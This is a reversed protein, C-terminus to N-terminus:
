FRGGSAHLDADILLTSQQGLRARYIQLNEVIRQVYNRTETIPILEIWDVVDVNPDRPDGHAKIWDRVRGGGANYAAFTMVYSGGQEEFLTGLHAAGLQANFAPDSTLRAADFGVGAKKATIRATGVLMQMLGKAGAGSGASAVFASEQRAISYVIAKDSFGSLPQFEPVGFTPFALDDLAFGHQSAAKGVVLSLHAERTAAAVNALAAMQAPDDIHLAVDLMLSTAAERAGLQQLAEAVRIAEARAEGQPANSTLRLPMASLGLKARALQGYFMSSHQGAKAYFANAGEADGLAEQTRGQWYQARSVSMPNEAIQALMTFHGRALAPNKLFRLAIWGAHFEAELRAANGIAGHGACLRYATAPDNRDLMERALMRREVWWEDGDVLSAADQPAKLMMEVAADTKAARRLKQITSFKLGADQRLAAPVAAMLADSAAKNVVATRARVLAVVDAGALAAIRLAPGTNEKYMLRDARYKHDAKTLYGGFERLVTKEMELNLDSKQWVERALIQAGAMDGAALLARALALKGAPTRPPSALLTAKVFEPAHRDGYLSEEARRSLWDRSPWDPHDALFQMIRAHGSPRPQSKLASWEATTRWIGPPLTRTLADGASLNGASYLKVAEAVAAPMTEAPSTDAPSAFAPVALAPGPAVPADAVGSAALPAISAVRAPLPLAVDLEARTPPAPLIFSVPRLVLSPSQTDDGSMAEPLLIACTSALLAALTIINKRM